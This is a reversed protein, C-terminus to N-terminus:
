VKETAEAAFHAITDPSLAMSHLGRGVAEWMERRSWLKETKPPIGIYDM